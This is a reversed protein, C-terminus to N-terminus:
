NIIVKKSNQSCIISFLCIHGIDVTFKELRPFKHLIIIKIVLNKVISLIQLIFSFIYRIKIFKEFHLFSNFYVNKFLVINHKSFTFYIINALSLTAVARVSSHTSTLVMGIGKGKHSTYIYIYRGFSVVTSIIRYTFM